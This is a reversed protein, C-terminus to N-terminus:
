LSCCKWSHSELIEIHYSMQVHSMVNTLYTSRCTVYCLVHCSMHGSMRFSLHFLNHCLMRFSVDCKRLPTLTSFTKMGNKTEKSSYNHLQPKIKVYKFRDPCPEPPSDQYKCSCACRGPEWYQTKPNCMDATNVCQQKCSTHNKEVVTEKEYSILNRANIKVDVSTNAVCTMTVPSIYYASGGCRQLTVFFPFLQFSPSDIAVLTPRPKCFENHKENLEKQAIGTFYPLYFLIFFISLM